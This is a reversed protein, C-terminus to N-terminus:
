RLYRRSTRLPLARWFTIRKPCDARETLIYHFIELGFGLDREQSVKGLFEHRVREEVDQATRPAKQEVQEQRRVDQRAQIDAIEACPDQQANEDVREGQQIKPETKGEYLVNRSV